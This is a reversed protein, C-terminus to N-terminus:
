LIDQTAIKMSIHFNEFEVRCIFYFLFVTFVIIVIGKSNQLVFFYLELPVEEKRKPYRRSNKRIYNM